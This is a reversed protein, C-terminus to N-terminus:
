GELPSRWKGEMDYVRGLNGYPSDLCGSGGHSLCSASKHYRHWTSGYFYSNRKKESQKLMNLDICKVKLGRPSLSFKTKGRLVTIKLIASILIFPYSLDVMYLSSFVNVKWKTGCPSPKCCLWIFEWHKTWGFCWIYICQTAPDDNTLRDIEAKLARKIWCDCGCWKWRLSFSQHGKGQVQIM